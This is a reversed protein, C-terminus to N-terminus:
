GAEHEDEKGIKAGCNPCAIARGFDHDLDREFSCSTCVAKNLKRCYRWSSRVVQVVDATPAEETCQIAHEVGFQVGAAFPHKDMRVKRLKELLAGRDIHEAM